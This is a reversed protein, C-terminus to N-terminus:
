WVAGARGMGAVADWADDLVDHLTAVVSWGAEGIIGAVQEGAIAVNLEVRNACVHRFAARRPSLM